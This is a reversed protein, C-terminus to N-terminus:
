DLQYIRVATVEQRSQTSRLGFYGTTLPTPDTFSFYRRGDVYVAISGDKVVTQVLYDRNAQLLHAADSHEQLLRRQGNGEYKRLRSSTNSNGGIGIYYLSLGDYSEFVGDRGFPKDGHPDSAMWFQNLDSLRDNLGGAMLVKRRYEILLHGTLKKNLWVTVGGRTDLVLCGDRTYVSSDPQPAIETIWTGRDLSGSFDDSFILRGQPITEARAVTAAMMILPILLLLLLLMLQCLAKMGPLRMREAM